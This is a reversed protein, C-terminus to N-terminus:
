WIHTHTHPPPPPTLLHTLSHTCIYHTLSLSLTTHLPKMLNTQYHSVSWKVKESKCFLNWLYLSGSIVIVLNNTVIWVRTPLSVDVSLQKIDVLYIYLPKGLYEVLHNLYVQIFQYWSWPWLRPWPWTWYLPMSLFYLGLPATMDIGLVGQHKIKDAYLLHTRLPSTRPTDCQIVSGDTMPSIPRAYRTIPHIFIQHICVHVWMCRCVTFWVRQTPIGHSVRQWDDIPQIPQRSWEM